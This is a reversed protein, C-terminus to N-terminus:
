VMDVFSSCVICSSQGPWGIQAAQCTCAQSANVGTRFAVGQPCAGTGRARTFLLEHDCRCGECHETYQISDYGAAAAAAPVNTIDGYVGFFLAADQHDRFAITRGVNVFIASGRTMYFWLSQDEIHSSCHTVEAWSHNAAHLAPAGLAYYAAARVHPRVLAIPRNDANRPCDDYNTPEVAAISRMRTYVMDIQSVRPLMPYESPTAGYLRAVYDEWEMSSVGARRLMGVDHRVPCELRPGVSCDNNCQFFATFSDAAPLLHDGCMSAFEDPNGRDCRSVFVCDHVIAYGDADNYRQCSAFTRALVHRHICMSPVPPPPQMPPLLYPPPPLLSPPPPSTPPPVEPPLPQWPPPPPPSQTPPNSNPPPPALLPPSPPPTAATPAAPLSPLKPPRPPLALPTPLPPALPSPPLMSSLVLAESHPSPQTVRGALLLPSLLMLLVLLVLVLSGAGIVVALPLPPQKTDQRQTDPEDVGSPNTIDALEVAEDQFDTYRRWQSGPRLTGIVAKAEGVVNPEEPPVFSEGCSVYLVEDTGILDMGDEDYEDGQESFIRRAASTLDLKITALELLEAMSAPLVAEKGVKAGVCRLTIRTPMAAAHM